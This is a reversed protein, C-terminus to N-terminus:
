MVLINSPYTIRPRHIVKFLHLMHTLVHLCRKLVLNTYLTLLAVTTYGLPIYNLVAVHETVSLTIAKADNELICPKEFNACSHRTKESGDCVSNM